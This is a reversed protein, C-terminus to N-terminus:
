TKGEEKPRGVGVYFETASSDMCHKCRGPELVNKDSWLSIGMGM